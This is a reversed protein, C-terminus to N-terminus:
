KPPQNLSADEDEQGDELGHCGVIEREEAVFKPVGPREYIKLPNILHFTGTRVLQLREINVRATGAGEHHNREAAGPILIKAALQSEFIDGSIKHDRGLNFRCPSASAARGLRSIGEAPDHYPGNTGSHRIWGGPRGPTFIVNKKRESGGPDRPSVLEFDLRGAVANGAQGGPRRRVPGNDLYGTHPIGQDHEPLLRAPRPHDM